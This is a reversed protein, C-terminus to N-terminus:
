VQYMLFEMAIDFSLFVMSYCRFHLLFVLPIDACFMSYELTVLPFTSYCLEWFLPFYLMFLEHFLVRACKMFRCAAKCHNKGKLSGM